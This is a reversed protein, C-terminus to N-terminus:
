SGLSVFASFHIACKWGGARSAISQGPLLSSFAGKLMQAAYSLPNESAGGSVGDGLLHAGRAMLFVIRSSCIVSGKQFTVLNHCKISSCIYCNFSCRLKCIAGM